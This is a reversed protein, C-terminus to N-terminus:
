AGGAFPLLNIDDDTATASRAVLPATGATASFINQASTALSTGTAIGLVPTVLTPSTNMVFTTGTGTQAAVSTANGVSTIPGTLNANTTVTGANIAYASSVIQQRPSMTEFVEDAGTTCSAGVKTAVEVQVFAQDDTFALDLTDGGAGGISADFVGERTLITM